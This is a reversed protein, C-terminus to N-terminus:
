DVRKVLQISDCFVTGMPPSILAVRPVNPDDDGMRWRYWLKRIDVWYNALFKPQRESVEVEAEFIASRYRVVQDCGDLFAKADKLTRFATLPGMDSAPVTKRETRYVLTFMGPAFLSTYIPGNELDYGVNVIKYAKM